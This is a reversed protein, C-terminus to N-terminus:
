CWVLKMLTAHGGHTNASRQFEDEENPNRACEIEAAPTEMSQEPEHKKHQQITALWPSCVHQQIVVRSDKHEIITITNREGCCTEVKSSM